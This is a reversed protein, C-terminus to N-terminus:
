SRVAAITLALSVVSVIYSIVAFLTSRQKRSLFIGLACFVISIILYIGWTYAADIIGLESPFAIAMNVLIWVWAWLGKLLGSVTNWFAGVGGTILVILLLIIIGSESSKGRSM